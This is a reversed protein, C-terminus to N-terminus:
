KELGLKDLKPAIVYRCYPYRRNLRYYDQHYNEAISYPGARTIETVIPDSFLAAAAKRSREAAERQAESHYFIASRYQTGVDNGQRNLTTPDHLKWFYDLLKAYSIRSPDFAVQVVEAHGTAGGCVQEYTPDPTTGGMYGSTVDEVGDIQELVAEVCWFCGAGFTAIETAGSGASPNESMTGAPGKEERNAQAPTTRGPTIEDPQTRDLRNWCAPLLLPTGAILCWVTPFSYRTM